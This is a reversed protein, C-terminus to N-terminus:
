YAGTIVEGDNMAGLRRWTQLDVTESILSVHGDGFAVNVGGPHHSRAAAHFEDWRSGHSNDCPMKPGAVCNLSGAAYMADGIPTNPVNLHTYAFSGMVHWAWMGRADWNKDGPGKSDDKGALVESALATNSTGDRFRCWKRSDDIRFAGDTEFDIGARNGDQMINIGNANRLMTASGFCVAYNSRSMETQMGQNIGTRGSSDDSPCQYVKMQARTADRNIQHSNAFEPHYLALVNAQEHFALIMALATHGPMRPRGGTGTGPPSAQLGIPLARNSDAYNHMALGIQKLNNCCQARRAAERAAQVALLLLAILVGIIAIVVLLEVLTFGAIEGTKSRDRWFSRKSSDISTICAFM